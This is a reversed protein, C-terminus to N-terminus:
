ERGGDFAGAFMAWTASFWAYAACLLLGGVSRQVAFTGLIALELAVAIVPGIRPPKRKSPRDQVLETV